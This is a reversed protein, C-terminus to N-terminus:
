SAPRQRYRDLFAQGRLLAPTPAHDSLMVEVFADFDEASLTIVTPICNWWDEGPKTKDTM